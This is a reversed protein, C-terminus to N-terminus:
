VHETEARILKKGAWKSSMYKMKEPGSSDGASNSYIHRIGIDATCWVKYGANKIWLCTDTDELWYRGYALDMEFGEIANRRFAQLFGSVCDVAGAYGQPVADFWNWNGKDDVTIWHGGPGCLGISKDRLPKTLRDLWDDRVSYIDSDAFVLTKGVSRKLLFDRGGSVGLNTTSLYLKFNACDLTHHLNLLWEATGDTSGNDLVSWIVNPRILTGILSKFCRAVIGRRNYTLFMIETPM